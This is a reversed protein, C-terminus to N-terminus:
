AAAEGNGDCGHDTIHAELNSQAESSRKRANEAVAKLRDYEAKSLVGVRRSLDAVAKSYIEAANQWATLLVTKTPCTEKRDKM